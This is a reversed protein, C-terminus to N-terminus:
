RRYEPYSTLVYCSGDRPWRLVVVARTCARTRREGRLLTRGIVEDPRGEYEVALNSRAGSRGAWADVRRRARQLAGIVVRRATEVDTYTSAAAIGPERRLRERLEDDTRGVHRALTHGGVREAATLDACAAVLTPGEGPAVGSAYCGSALVALWLAAFARRAASRRAAVAANGGAHGV